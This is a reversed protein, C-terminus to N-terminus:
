MFRRVFLLSEVFKTRKLDVYIELKKKSMALPSREDSQCVKFLGLCEVRDTHFPRLCAPSKKSGLEGSNQIENTESKARNKQGTLCIQFCIQRHESASYQTCSFVHKELLRSQRETLDFSVSCM